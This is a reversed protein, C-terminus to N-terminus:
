KKGKKKGLANKGMSGLLVRQNKYGNKAAGMSATKGMGGTAQRVSGSTRITNVLSQGATGPKPAPMSGSRNSGSPTYAGLMGFGLKKAM